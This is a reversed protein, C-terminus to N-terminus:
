QTVYMITGFLLVPLRRSDLFNGYFTHHIGVHGDNAQRNLMPTNKESRSRETSEHPLHFNKQPWWMAVWMAPALMQKLPTKGKASPREKVFKFVSLVIVAFPICM